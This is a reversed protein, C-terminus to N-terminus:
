RKGKQKRIKKIEQEFGNYTPEYFVEGVLKDPLYQQEVYGGYNHPYKYEASKEKGEKSLYAPNILHSPVNDDKVIEVAETAKHLAMVVSNSKPAECVYIIAQTLPILGEPSGLNQYATLASTAVVLAQPDALGVDESAHVVLRRAILLPDYGGKILRQSYYLAADSDSGRLSKCFASLMHYYGNEDISLAKKQISQEADKLTVVIKGDENVPTTLVALELANYATRLDGSATVAIHKVADEDVQLDLSGFGRKKDSIAKYIASEIIDDSLSKFEFVRCRSIIAPTMSAYPNETTSGIFIITGNEISPLLSDQQTKNFRHCEDLLLYTRKGYMKLNDAAVEIAKKVDQVGSTVANLKVFYGSTSSAIVNALTTKGTGPPGWFICSGLKDTVIARKLLSGDCVIHSQGLFEKLSQPRMRDALPATDKKEITDFLTYM